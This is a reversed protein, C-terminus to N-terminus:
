GVRVPIVAARDVLRNHPGALSGELQTWSWREWEVERDVRGGSDLLVRDVSPSARNVFPQHGRM